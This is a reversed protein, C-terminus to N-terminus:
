KLLRISVVANLFASQDLYREVYQKATEYSINKGIVVGSLEHRPRSRFKPMIEEHKINYKKIIKVKYREIGSGPRNVEIMLSAVTRRGRRSRRM